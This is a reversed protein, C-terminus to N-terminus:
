DLYAGFKISSKLKMVENVVARSRDRDEALHIWDMDGCDWKEFIWKLMLRGDVCPDGWHVRDRLNGWWFGTCAEGTGM